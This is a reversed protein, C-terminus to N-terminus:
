GTLARIVAFGSQVDIAGNWSGTAVEIWGLQRMYDPHEQDREPHLLIFHLRMERHCGALKSQEAQEYWLPCDRGLCNAEWGGKREGHLLGQQRLAAAYQESRVFAVGANDIDGGTGSCRIRSSSWSRNLLELAVERGEHMADYEFALMGRLERGFNYVGPDKANSLPTAGYAKIMEETVGDAVKGIIVDKDSPFNKGKEVYGLKLKATRLTRVSGTLGNIPM